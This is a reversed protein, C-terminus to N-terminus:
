GLEEDSMPQRLLELLEPFSRDLYMEEAERLTLAEGSLLLAIVPDDEPIWGPQERDSM